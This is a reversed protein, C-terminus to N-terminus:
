EPDETAPSLHELQILIDGGLGLGDGLIGVDVLASIWKQYDGKPSTKARSAMKVEPTERIEIYRNPAGPLGNDSENPAVDGRHELEYYTTSVIYTPHV